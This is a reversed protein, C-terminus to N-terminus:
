RTGLKWKTWIVVVRCSGEISQFEAPVFAGSYVEIAAVEQPSMFEDPTGLRWRSGDVWYTTCAGGFGSARPPPLHRLFDSVEIAHRRDLAEQTMYRGMGSRQRAAFGVRELAFDRRAQVLVAELVPVFAGLRVTVERPARRTLNLIVEAPQYGLKRVVLSQTGSRQGGLVFAGTSDTVTAALSGALGVRAGALAAGASDVVVGRVEAGRGASTGPIIGTAGTDSIPLFLTAMGLGPAGYAIPLTATSDSGRTASINASLEPPLGCLKYRGNEDSPATRDYPQYRVGFKAGVTLEIWWVRVEAGAVPEESDANLVVGILAGTDGGLGSCKARVITAASPIALALYVTSDGAFAVPPTLVRVGLTDLTLHFLEIQHDGAPISDIRFRGLSDAFAFRRTGTVILSAGNAFGGHLSDLIVGELRAFAAARPEQGAAPAALAAFFAFWTIRAMALIGGPIQCVFPPLSRRGIRGLVDAQPRVPGVEDHSLAVERKTVVVGNRVRIDHGCQSQQQVVRADKRRAYSPLHERQRRSLDVRRSQHVPQNVTVVLARSNKEERGITAGAAQWARPQKRASM